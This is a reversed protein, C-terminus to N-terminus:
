FPVDEGARESQLVIGKRACELFLTIAVARVDEGSFAPGEELACWADWSARLSRSMARELSAFSVGEPSPKGNGSAPPTPAAPTRAVPQGNPKGEAKTPQGNGNQKGEAPRWATEEEREVGAEAEAEPRAEPEVVWEKRNGEGEVKTITLVSGPGVQAAQLQRHLSPTAYLKDRQGSLEVTYLSQPGYQGNVDMSDGWPFLLTQPTNIQFKIAM